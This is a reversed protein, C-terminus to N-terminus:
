LLEERRSGQEEGESLQTVSALEQKKSCQWETKIKDNLM